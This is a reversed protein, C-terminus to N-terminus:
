LSFIREPWLLSEIATNINPDAVGDGRHEYLDAIKLLIAHKIDEPVAAALGYGCVFRIQVAQIEDYTSPWSQGYALVIRGPESVTDVIYYASDFTQLTGATDKYQLSTVSQLPPKPLRIESKSPFRDLYLDLTQTIYARNQFNECWRRAAKIMSEVLDDDPHATAPSTDIALHMKAEALTIPEESPAEYLSYSEM